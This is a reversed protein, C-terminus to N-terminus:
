GISSADILRLGYGVALVTYASRGCVCHEQRDQRERPAVGDVSM